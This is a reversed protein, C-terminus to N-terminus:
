RRQRTDYQFTVDFTFIENSNYDLTVEGITIPFAISYLWSASESEEDVNLTKVVIEASLENRQVSGGVPSAVLDDYWDEFFSYVTHEEDDWFNITVNRTDTPKGPYFTRESKYPIELSEISKEPLNVSQAYFVLDENGGTSLGQIEVEWQYMRQPENLNRVNEITAM